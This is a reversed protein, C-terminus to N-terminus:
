YDKEKEGWILCENGFDVHFLFCCENALKQLTAVISSYNMITLLELKIEAIGKGSQLTTKRLYWTLIPSTNYGEKTSCNKCTDTM